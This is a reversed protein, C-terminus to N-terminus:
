CIAVGTASSTCPPGTGTIIPEFYAEPRPVQIFDYVTSYFARDGVIRFDAGTAAILAVSPSFFLFLFDECTSDPSAPM